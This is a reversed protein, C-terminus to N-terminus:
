VKYTTAGLFNEDYDVMGFCPTVGHRGHSATANEPLEAITIGSEHAARRMGGRDPLQQHELDAEVLKTFTTARPKALLSTLASVWPM